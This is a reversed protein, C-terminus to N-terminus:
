AKVTSHDAVAVGDLLKRVEILLNEALFPKRLFGDYSTSPPIQNRMSASMLLVPVQGRSQFSPIAAPRPADTAGPLAGDSILLKHEGEHLRSIAEARSAVCVEFGQSELYMSCSEAMAEDDDVILIM